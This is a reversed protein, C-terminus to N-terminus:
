GDSSTRCPYGASRGGVARLVTWIPCAPLYEWANAGQQHAQQRRELDALTDRMVDGISRASAIRAADGAIREIGSMAWDLANPDTQAKAKLEAGFFFLRRRM